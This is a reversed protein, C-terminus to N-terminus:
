TGTSGFGGEDRESTPLEDVIRSSVPPCPVILLQFLRDGARWETRGPTARYAMAKVEGRYDSDIIGVTNALNIGLKVGASSRPLLIGVSNYPVACAFGLRLEEPRCDSYDLRGDTPM